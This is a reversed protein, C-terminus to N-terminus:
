QNKGDGSHFCFGAELVVHINKKPSYRRQFSFHVISMPIDDHKNVGQLFETLRYAMGYM